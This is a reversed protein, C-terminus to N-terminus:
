NNGYSSGTSRPFIVSEWNSDSEVLHVHFVTDYWYGPYWDHCLRYQLSVPILKFLKGSAVFPVVHAAATITVEVCWFVDVYKFRSNM